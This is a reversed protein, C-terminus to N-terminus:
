CALGLGHIAFVAAMTSNDTARYATPSMSSDAGLRYRIQAGQSQAQRAASQGTGKWDLGIQASNTLM